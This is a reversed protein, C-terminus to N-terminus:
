NQLVPIKAQPKSKPIQFRALERLLVSEGYVKTVRVTNM